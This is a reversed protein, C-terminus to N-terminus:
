HTSTESDYTNFNAILNGALICKSAFFQGADNTKANMYRMMAM